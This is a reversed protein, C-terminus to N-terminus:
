NAQQRVIRRAFKIVGLYTIVYAFSAIAVLVILAPTNSQMAIAGLSCFISFLWISPSVLANQWDPTLQTWLKRTVRSRLLSHLHLGDPHAPLHARARRRLMSYLVELVPYICVLLPAWPSVSPNRTTLLVASWGVLFGILYAGGDGLFLKGFPFNILLFGLSVAAMILFLEVLVTDNQQHAIYAFTALAIVSLGAALGHVGDVMNFANCMGGVAFATFLISVLPVSALFWDVSAIDVRSISLGTLWWILLGSCITALLRDQWRVRRSLDEALGFFFAPLSAIVVPKLLERVPIPAYSFAVVLGILLAVGGVRPTPHTHLKQPGVRHDYTLHGHLGGSLVIAVCVFFTTIGGNAASLVDPFTLSM